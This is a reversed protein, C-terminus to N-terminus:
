TFMYETHERFWFAFCLMILINRSINWSSSVKPLALLPSELCSKTGRLSEIGLSLPLSVTCVSVTRDRFSSTSPLKMQIMMFTGRDNEWFARKYM